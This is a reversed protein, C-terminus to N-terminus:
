SSTFTRYTSWAVALAIMPYCMVATHIPAGLRVALVPALLGAVIAFPPGAIRRPVGVLRMVTFQVLHALVASWFALPIMATLGGIATGGGKGGRFGVYAPWIHGAVAGLAGLGKASGEDIDLLAAAAAAAAYGKACDLIGALLGALKGVHLYVNASGLNRSGITRPDPGGFARSILLSFPIAGLTYGIVIAIAHM